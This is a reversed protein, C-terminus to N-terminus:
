ASTSLDGAGTELRRTRLKGSASLAGRRSSPAYGKKKGDREDRNNDVAIVRARVVGYDIRWPDLFGSIWREIRETGLKEHM